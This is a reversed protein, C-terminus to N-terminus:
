AAYHVRKTRNVSARMYPNRIASEEIIDVRRGFMAALEDRMKVMDLLDWSARPEFAILVDVDSTPGFNGSVISGTFAFERVMWRRCFEPIQDTPIPLAVAM